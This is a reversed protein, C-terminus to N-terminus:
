THAVPYKAVLHANVTTPQGIDTSQGCLHLHQWANMPRCQELATFGLDKTNGGQVHQAHLLLKVGQIRLVPLAVHM